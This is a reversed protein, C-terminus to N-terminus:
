RIINVTGEKRIGAKPINGNIYGISSSGCVMYNEPIGLDTLVKRIKSDEGFWKLQNIWCSGLGLSHAALFINQLAAASDAMANPYNKDNSVIILTPANYYFNYKPNASAKKGSIMSRYSNENIELNQFAEKVHENLTKLILPNQVVTFLWSQSNSGSPAYKAADLISNLGEDSIQESSYSRISRRTLITNLVENM